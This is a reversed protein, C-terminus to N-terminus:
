KVLTNSLVAIFTALFLFAHASGYWWRKQGFSGYEKGSKIFVNRQTFANIAFGVSQLALIVLYPIRLESPYVALLVIEVVRIPICVFWFLLALKTDIM